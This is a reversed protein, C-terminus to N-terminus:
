RTRRARLSRWWASIRPITFHARCSAGASTSRVRPRSASRWSLRGRQARSSRGTPLGASSRSHYSRSPGPRRLELRRSLCRSRGIVRLPRRTTWARSRAAPSDHAEKPLLRVAADSSSMRECPRAGSPGRRPPPRWSLAQWYSRSCDGCAHDHVAARRPTCGVRGHRM